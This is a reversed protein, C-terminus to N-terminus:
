TGPFTSSNKSRQNNFSRQRKVQLGGASLGWDPYLPSSFKPCQNTIHHGGCRTCNKSAVRNEYLPKSAWPAPPLTPRNGGDKGSKDNNSPESISPKFNRQEDGKKSCEGSQRHQQQQQQQQPQLQGGSKGHEPRPQCEAAAAHEFLVDISGCRGDVLLAIRFRLGPRMGTWAMEYFMKQFHEEDWGAQRWLSRLRNASARVGEEMDHRGQYFEQYGQMATNM